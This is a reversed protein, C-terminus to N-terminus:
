EEIEAKKLETGIGYQYVLKGGHDGTQFVFYSGVVALIIFIYQFIGTFKKKIVFVTRLVLLAAFYWLTINAWEQHDTIAGFQIIAGQDEWVRAVELAQNGTLVAALAGLTGILLFLHAAKSFFDKKFIVGSIELLPYLMLFAIVFHIVRPHNEALFEM